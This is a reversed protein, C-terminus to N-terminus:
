CRAEERVKQHDGECRQVQVHFLMFDRSHADAMYIRKGKTSSGLNSISRFVSFSNLCISHKRVLALPAGLASSFPM